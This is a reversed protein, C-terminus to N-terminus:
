ALLEAVRHLHQHGLEVRPDVGALLDDLALQGAGPRLQLSRGPRRARRGAIADAAELHDGAGAVGGAM